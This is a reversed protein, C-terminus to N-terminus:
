NGHLRSGYRSDTERIAQEDRDWYSQIIESDEM